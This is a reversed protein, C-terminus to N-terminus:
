FRWDLNLHIRNIDEGEGDYIRHARSLGLILELRDCPNWQLEYRLLWTAGGGFGRQDYRGLGVALRHRLSREYRRYQLWENILALDVSLDRRPNFYPANDRDNRSTYIGLTGYLKYHPHNILRQFADGQISRRRNGDSFDLYRLGM